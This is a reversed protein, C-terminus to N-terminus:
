IGQCLRSFCQCLTAEVDPLNVSVTIRTVSIQKSSALFPFPLGSTSQFNLKGLGTSPKCSSPAIMETLKQHKPRAVQRPELPDFILPRRSHGDRLRSWVIAM